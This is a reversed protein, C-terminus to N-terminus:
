AGDTDKLGMGGIKENYLTERFTNIECMPVAVWEGERQVAGRFCCADLRKQVVASRPFMVDTAHMFNHQVINLFRVEGSLFRGILDYGLKEQRLRSHIYKLGGWIVSPHRMLISGIRLITEAPVDDRWEVAGLTEFILKWFSRSQADNPMLNIIEREPYVIMLPIVTSCDPHGFRFTDQPLAQGVGACIQRWTGDATVPSQSFRTRGVDAEPQFSVLRFASLRREDAILWRLVEPISDINRETVTVNHAAYFRIGTKRRVDHVLEVFAERLSHLDAESKLKRIPYGPRGAQTIDIHFAIKRLGGERVLQVFYDPQELLVQGHTMLMPVLGVQNTYRVIEILEGPKGARWYADVVDGGTIQLPGSPGTLRRNADIQAKMEDLTPIPVRNANKPLYCHTCSFSCYSAGMTYGCHVLQQGVVQQETKLDSPLADWREKLLLRRESSIPEKLISLYKRLRSM